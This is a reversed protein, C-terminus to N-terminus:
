RKLRAREKAFQEAIRAYMAEGEIRQGWYFTKDPPTGGYRMFDAVPCDADNVRCRLASKEDRYVVVVVPEDGVFGAEYAGPETPVNALMPPKDMSKKENDM